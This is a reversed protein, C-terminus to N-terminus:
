IRWRWRHRVALSTVHHEAMDTVPRSEGQALNMVQGRFFNETLEGFFHHHSIIFMKTSM